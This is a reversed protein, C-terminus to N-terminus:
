SGVAVSSSPLQKAGILMKLTPSVTTVVSGSMRSDLPVWHLQDVGRTGIVKFVFRAFSVHCATIIELSLMAYIRQDPESTKSTAIGLLMEVTQFLPLVRSRQGKLCYFGGFVGSLISSITHNIRILNPVGKSNCILEDKQEIHSKLLDLLAENVCKNGLISRGSSYRSLINACSIGRHRVDRSESQLLQTLMIPTRPLSALNNVVTEAESSLLLFLLAGSSPLQSRQLCCFYVYM